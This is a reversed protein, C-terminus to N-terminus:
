KTVVIFASPQKQELITNFSFWKKKTRERSGPDAVSVQGKSNTGTLVIYHGGSTFTGPGMLAIVLSKGSGLANLIQQGNNVRSVKLNYDKKITEALTEIYTGARSCSGRSCVKSTTEIPNIGKQYMSSVVIAVATPGCGSNQITGTSYVNRPDKSLYYKGYDGQNWYIINGFTSNEYHLNKDYEGDTIKVIPQDYFLKILQEYSYNDNKALYMAITQSMGYHHDNNYDMDTGYRYGDGAIKQVEEKSVPANWTWESSKDDNFRQFKVHWGSADDTWWKGAPHSQYQTTAIENNRSVVMNSTEKAAKTYIDNEGADTYAQYSEGNTVSCSSSNKHTGLLFSRAAIAQAKLAQLNNGGMEQKIVGAIYSDLSITKGNVTVNNCVGNYGVVGYKDKEESTEKENAMSKSINYLDYIQNRIMIANERKEDNEFEYSKTMQPTFLFVVFLLLLSLTKVIKKMRVGRIM